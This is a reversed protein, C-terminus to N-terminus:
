LGTLSIPAFSSSVGTNGGMATNLISTFASGGAQIVSTTQSGSRVLVTIIAVTIVLTLVTVIATIIDDGKM